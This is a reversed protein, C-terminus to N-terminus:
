EWKLMNRLRRFRQEANKQSQLILDDAHEPNVSPLQSFRIETFVFDKYKNFDPEAQDLQLPNKGQEELRPDYRFIPFYGCEVAKKESVQHNQLGGKIGHEICPSYAIILSPGDYSEAERFAKLVQNPNAGMACTAVYVHGYAMAMAALDKRATQKGSSAFKAIQGTPSAKSSQGGTNSYVETDLVLINVNERNAIVHDLGGYGIDYAWGDGGIIWVSKNIFDTEYPLLAKIGEHSGARILDFVEHKYERVIQTSQQNKLYDELLEKLRPETITPLNETVIKKVINLKYDIALRMGYGYEANDEFLSNGWAPGEGKDNTTFSNSPIAGCYISTCGTANAILMSTGFLQTALRYYPTEGCGACAGSVEFYPKMFQAGKVTTTPYFETKYRIKKYLYDAAIDQQKDLEEKVPVMKLPKPKGPKDDVPCEVVCLSCGVCNDPSVQIKYKLGKVNPGGVADLLDGKVVDPANNVDNEDLLFARITAHPCVFVCKGCQICTDKYWAPVEAAITRKEYYATDSRMSGDLLEGQTFISVPLENGELAAISKEYTEFFDNEDIDRITRVQIDAWEKKVPIEIYREGGSELARFNQDIVEQGKKGYTKKAYEKMYTLAEDWPIISPNLKFFTAQLITNTRRGMGIEQAIAQADIVFLRANKMALGKKFKNPLKDELEEPKYTTALLFTGNKKLQKVMDYKILYSDLSCSVFDANDIYYTSRIEQSGFRLHSKTVGGAKKSDYQFYAQAYKDTYDGIIKISNKNASVTGDSALGYFLCQTYTQAIEFNEDKTVSLNTIDDYIGVTFSSWPKELDLHNYVGKIWKPSTDKGALGYRGGVVLVDPRSTNLINKVDLFLPEGTATMEKTRDLVAVRKVTLPIVDLMHQPSFPRYLHVKVLGVKQGKLNMADVTEKITETVSGMAVLIKTAEKHGYYTFPAYHRGTIESIKKFYEVSVDVVRNYHTNQAEKGQFYIDDNENGGRVVPNDFPSLANKRFRQIAKHDVLENFISYDLVEIKQIEHSTRYGDFFHMVPAAAKIAVLHALGALDAVEQVSHSAIIPVGTARAANIDQHDGFISLSRAAIARASVHLVGPIMEGVWKYINPIMLLLGQSATFTTSLAGSQLAGHVVGAAGAESQMEMVKVTSGFINLKGQASWADCHEAMGSSPSIPYIGAVETFAYACYAAAENGDLSLFKKKKKNLDM